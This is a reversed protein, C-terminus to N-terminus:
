PKRLVSMLNGSARLLNLYATKRTYQESVLNLEATLLNDQQLLRDLNTERGLQFSRDSLDFARKAAEVQVQLDVIKHDSALLNTHAQNIEDRVTRQTQSFALGAQRYVSWARRIDAEIQLGSFIPVNATIGGTWIQSTDPDNYLYYNFNIGVSPYYARIAAEVQLRAAELAGTAARLDPRDERARALWTDRPAVDGPADFLDVLHGDVADVGMLRALASRANATDALAQTLSVRTGALDAQSQAVDLPRVGGLRLRAEQDRVQESRLKISNEFVNAQQQFRLVDYYSQSVQLLVTQRQDFFLQARQEVTRGTAQLNSYDQLSGNVSANLPASFQRRNGSSGGIVIQGTGAGFDTGDGGLVFGSSGNSKSYSFSPALSLTPLFTGAARMKDALAQIYDEGASAIAENDAQAQRLADLLSLNAAPDFAPRSTPGATYRRVLAADKSWDACGAALLAFLVVSKRLPSGHTTRSRTKRGASSAHTAGVLRATAPSSSDSM